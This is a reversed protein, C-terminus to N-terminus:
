QKFASLVYNIRNCCSHSSALSYLLAAMVEHCGYQVILDIWCFIFGEGYKIWDRVTTFPDLHWGSFWRLLLMSVIMSFILDIWCFIFGEGYKIRNCVTPFLDFHWGSFQCSLLMSVVMSVILDIWCFILGEGCKIRNCVTSFLDFHLSDVRSFSHPVLM